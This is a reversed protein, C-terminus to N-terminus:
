QRRRVDLFPLQQDDAIIVFCHASPRSDAALRDTLTPMVAKLSLEMSARM